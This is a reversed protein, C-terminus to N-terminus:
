QGTPSTDTGGAPRPTNSDIAGDGPLLRNWDNGSRSGSQFSGTCEGTTECTSIGPMVAGSVLAKGGANQSLNPDATNVAWSITTMACSLMAVTLFHIIFKM